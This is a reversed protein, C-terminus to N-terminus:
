ERLAPPSRNAPAPGAVLVQGASLKNEAFPSVEFGASELHRQGAPEGAYVISREVRPKESLVYSLINRALLRAAPDSETRGTVDLQCFVILGRGECYEVLPSYQLSFGGDTIPLFSGCAPKEILM